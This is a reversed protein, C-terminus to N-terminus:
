IIIFALLLEHNASAKWTNKSFLKNLGLAKSVTKTGLLACSLIYVFM